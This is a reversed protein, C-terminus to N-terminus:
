NKKKSFLYKFFCGKLMLNIAFHIKIYLGNTLLKIPFLLQIADHKLVLPYLKTTLATKITTRQQKRVLSKQKIFAWNNCYRWTSLLLDIYTAEINANEKEMNKLCISAIKLISCYSKTKDPVTTISGERHTYYIYTQASNVAIKHLYKSLMYTYLEDEHLLNEPFFLNHTIILDRKILRNTCTSPLPNLLYQMIVSNGEIVEPFDNEGFTLGQEMLPIQKFSGQVMDVDHYKQILSYLQEIADIPLEDDSDLFFLYDGHANEIGTNRAASLGGNSPRRILNFTVNGVYNNIFDEAIDVSKDTGCDDVLVCEVRDKFTQNTISKLCRVIYPEVNYLPVIISVKCM